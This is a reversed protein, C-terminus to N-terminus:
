QNLLIYFIHAIIEEIRLVFDIDILEYNMM